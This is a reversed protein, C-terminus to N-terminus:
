HPTGSNLIHCALVDVHSPSGAMTNLRLLLEFHVPPGAPKIGCSQLVDSLRPLDTMLKGAAETGEGNAGALILVQGNADPNQIFAIIAFSQGTAWGLATPVYKAAENPRPHSNIIVEQKAAQDFAFRFDLQDNFLSTWPDSRPSGLFIFNDDTKLDALQISRSARADIARLNTAALASIRVAIPPDVAAASNDGWLISRCYQIEEPTLKEEDPIYKHNAYDSLTLESGTIEQIVVINPDSTILHTPHSLTLLSSWPLSTIQNSLAAKIGGSRSREIGWWIVAAAAICVVIWGAVRLWATRLYQQSPIAAFEAAREEANSVQAHAPYAALSQVPNEQASNGNLGPGSSSRRTIEPIYSGLPLNLRFESSQGNTGYHQLLRRRVDSATVRVIADEGTDYSPSRGFLEVGIMREKLSDFHGAISQDIIYKLFQGSRHSGKFAPGRIIDAIHKQFRALDEESSAIRAFEAERADLPDLSEMRLELAEV